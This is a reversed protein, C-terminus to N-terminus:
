GLSPRQQSSPIDFDDVDSIDSYHAEVSVATSNFKEGDQLVSFPDVEEDNNRQSFFMANDELSFSAM